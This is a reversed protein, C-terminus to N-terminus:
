FDVNAGVRVSYATADNISQFFDGPMFFAGNVKLQVDETYDYVGWLDIEDGFDTEGDNIYYAEEAIPSQSIPTLSVDDTNLSAGGAYDEALMAHTYLLGVTVDERPMTSASLTIYQLNTNPLLINIIEAPSQDEFLPDWANDESDGADDDGSLYTYALGVKSNKEDLMKYEAMAQVAFAEKDRSIYNTADYTDGLQLAGELGLTLNDNPDYQTRAGLTIVRDEQDEQIQSLTGRDQTWFVYAETIGNYSSWDYAINAGVVTLDDRTDLINEDVKAYIVDITYPAYDLIARVADFAKRLTLDGLENDVKTTVIRNTDPDGIVLGNGYRLEQRGIILTLPQYLFEQMKLYAIDLNIDTDTNGVSSNDYDDEDGWIRENILRVVASVGETLDADFRLRVQSFIFSETDNQDGDEDDGSGNPQVRAGMSLDRIVLESNIDGSVKINEVAAFSSGLFAVSLVAIAVILKRSM